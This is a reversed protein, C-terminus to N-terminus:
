GEGQFTTGVSVSSLGPAASGWGPEQSSADHASRCHGQQHSNILQTTPIKTKKKEHVLIKKYQRRISTVLKLLLRKQLPGGKTQRPNSSDPTETSGDERGLARKIQCNTGPEPPRSFHTKDLCAISKLCNCGGGDLISLATAISAEGKDKFDQPQQSSCGTRLTQPGKMNIFGPGVRGLTCTWEATALARTVAPM